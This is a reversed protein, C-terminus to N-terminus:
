DLLRKIQNLDLQCESGPIRFVGAELLGLKGESYRYSRGDPDIVLITRVGMAEYDSCREMIEPMTDRQSLIEFVAVPPHTAFREQPLNRDLLAVDPIRFRGEAVRIRLEPRVRIGGQAAQQQFWACIAAQWASHENDGVNREVIVGDVYDVDPSYSTLLYENLSVAEVSATM